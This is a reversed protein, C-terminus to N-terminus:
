LFESFVHIQPKGGVLKNSIVKINKRINQYNQKTWEKKMFREKSKDLADDTTGSYLLMGKDMIAM